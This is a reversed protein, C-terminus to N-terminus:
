TSSAPLGSGLAWAAHERLFPRDSSLLESLLDDADDDAVQGLAHVASIASIQDTGYLAAALVRVTRLGPNRNAVFAVDDAARMIDVIRVAANSADLATQIGM